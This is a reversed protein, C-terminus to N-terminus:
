LWYNTLMKVLMSNNHTNQYDTHYYKKFNRNAEYDDNAHSVNRLAMNYDMDDALENHLDSFILTSHLTNM